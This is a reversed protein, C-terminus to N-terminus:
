RVQSLAQDFDAIIDAIGEIGVSIRILDDFVGAAQQEEPSFDRYITSAVHIGLTKADGLNAANAVLKLANLVQYAREKSGMRITMLAGGRGSFQRAVLAQQEHNALGPYRTVAVKPHAELFQALALTNDCHREM